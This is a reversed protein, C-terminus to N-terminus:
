QIKQAPKIETILAIGWQSGRSSFQSRSLKSCNLCSLSSFALFALFFHLSHLSHQSLAFPLSEPVIPRGSRLPNTDTDLSFCLPSIVLSSSSIRWTLLEPQFPPDRYRLLIFPAPLATGPALENRSTQRADNPPPPAARLLEPDHDTCPRGWKASVAAAADADACGVEAQAAENGSSKHPLGM